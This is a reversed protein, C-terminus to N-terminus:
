LVVGEGMKPIRDENIHKDTDKRENLSNVEEDFTVNNLSEVWKWLNYSAENGKKFDDFM